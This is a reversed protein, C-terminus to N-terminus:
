VENLNSSKRRPGMLLFRAWELLLALCGKVWLIWKEPFAMSEMIQFLFKWNISDYAKEFDVKFILLKTKSKKAWAVTESVILPSDLISRGGVFASQTPSIVDNIVIKLRNALVKTIIKYILGVLSIPQFNSLVQPDNTRPILAVFSSNCGESIVGRYHFDRMVAM